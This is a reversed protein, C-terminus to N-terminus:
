LLEKGVRSLSIKLSNFQFKSSVPSSQLAGQSVSLYEVTRLEGSSIKLKKLKAV